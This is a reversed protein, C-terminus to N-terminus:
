KPTSTTGRSAAATSPPTLHQLLLCMWPTLVYYWNCTCAYFSGVLCSRLSACDNRIHLQESVMCQMHRTFRLLFAQQLAALLAASELRRWWATHPMRNSVMSAPSTSTGVTCTAKLLRRLCRTTTGPLLLLLLLLPM